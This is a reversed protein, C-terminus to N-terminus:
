YQHKNPAQLVPKPGQWVPYAPGKYRPDSGLQNLTFRIPLTYRVNVPKGNITGPQWRPMKQCIRIAEIDISPYVKKRTEINRIIGKSDVVFSVVALGSVDDRAADVPYSINQKIFSMLAKDGGQFQPKTDLLKENSISDQPVNNAPKTKEIAFPLSVAHRTAIPQGNLKAPEWDPMKYLVRIAEVSLSQHPSQEVKFNIKGGTELVMFSVLVNGEINKALAESPYTINAALYELMATKGGPYQPEEVKDSKGLLTFVEDEAKFKIPLTYRVAVNRGNQKGPKWRPMASIVRIAETDLSPAASKLVTADTIRGLSDVIFSIFATGAQNNKLAEQPYRLNGSLYKMLSDQGGPFEPMHEVFVYVKETPKDLTKQALTKNSLFLTFLFLLALLNTRM